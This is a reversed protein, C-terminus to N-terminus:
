AEEWVNPTMDDMRDIGTGSTGQDIRIDGLGPVGVVVNTNSYAHMKDDHAVSLAVNWGNDLEGSGSFTLNSGIGIPNGSNEDKLHDMVYRCWWNSNFEGANAASIAALSGCM